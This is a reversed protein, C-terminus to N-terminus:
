EQRARSPPAATSRSAHSFHGCLSEERGTRASQFRHQRVLQRL